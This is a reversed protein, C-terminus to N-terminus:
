RKKTPKARGVKKTTAKKTAKKPAPREPAAAVVAASAGRVTEGGRRKKSEAAGKVGRIQRELKGIVKDISEYMDETTEKAEFRSGGSSIRTEAIHNLRDISLTVKATMPQRLFKQLKSVKEQAHLKIAASADMHRFTISINM